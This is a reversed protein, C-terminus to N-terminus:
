VNVMVNVMMELLEHRRQFWKGLAELAALLGDEVKDQLFREWHNALPESSFDLGVSIQLHYKSM